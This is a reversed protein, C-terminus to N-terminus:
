PESREGAQQRPPLGVHVLVWEYPGRREFTFLTEGGDEVGRVSMRARNVGWYRPRPWADKAAVSATSSARGGGRTLANIATPSLYAEVDPGIPAPPQVAQDFHRRIAGIPDEIISPAPTQPAPRSSLQPRLAARLDDYDVLQSLGEVDGAEAAARIAYFAAFPAAVFGVAALVVALSILNLILRKFSPRRREAERAAQARGWVPTEEPSSAPTTLAAM